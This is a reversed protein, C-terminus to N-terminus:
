GFLWGACIGALALQTSVFPLAGVTNFSNSFKEWGTILEATNLAVLSILYGCLCSALSVKSWPTKEIANSFGVLAIGLAVFFIWTYALVVEPLKIFAMPIAGLPTYKWATFLLLTVVAPITAKKLTGSM